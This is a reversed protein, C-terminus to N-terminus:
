AMSRWRTFYSNGMSYLCVSRQLREPQSRLARVFAPHVATETAICLPKFELGNLKNLDGGSSESREWVRIPDLPPLLTKVTDTLSKLRDRTAILSACETRADLESALPSRRVIELESKLRQLAELVNKM